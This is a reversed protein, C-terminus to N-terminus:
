QLVLQSGKRDVLRGTKPRGDLFNEQSRGSVVKGSSSGDSSICKGDM